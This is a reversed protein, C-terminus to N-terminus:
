ASSFCARRRRRGLPPRFGTCAPEASSRRSTASPSSRGRRRPGAHRRRPPGDEVPLAVGRAPRPDLAGDCAVEAREVLVRTSSQDQPRECFAAFDHMGPLCAAASAIRAADLPRKIWWVSRKACPRAAARSRTSTPACAGRRPARPIPRPGAADGSRARRAAARRQDGAPLPAARRGGPAAPARGPPARARRRRHRGAGGLEVVDGGADAVARKLEGAVSRANQQEQWGRYRTRRIRLDLRYTPMLSPNDVVERREPELRLRRVRAQGQRGRDRRRRRPGYKQIFALAGGSAKFDDAYWDFIKARSSGPRAATPRRGAVAGPSALYSRAADDLQADLDAAAYPEPRIPPCSKSACNVAFHIRPDKFEERLRKELDNLSIAKRRVDLSRPQLNRLPEVGTRSSRSRARPTGSAPRDGPDERQLSQHAAGEARGAPLPKPDTTRFIM